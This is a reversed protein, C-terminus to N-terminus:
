EVKMDEVLSQMAMWGDLIEQNTLNQERGNQWFQKAEDTMWYCNIRESEIDTMEVRLLKAALGETIRRSGEVLYLRKNSGGGDRFHKLNIGVEMTSMAAVWDAHPVNPAPLNEPVNSMTDGKMLHIIVFLDRVVHGCAEEIPSILNVEDRIDSWIDIDSINDKFLAVRLKRYYSHEPPGATFSYRM